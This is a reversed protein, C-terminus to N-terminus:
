IWLLVLLILIPLAVCFLISTSEYSMGYRKFFQLFKVSQQFLWDSYAAFDRCGIFFGFTTFAAAAKLFHFDFQYDLITLFLFPVVFFYVLVNIQNYTLKTLEAIRYLSKAVILFLFPIFKGKGWGFKVQIDKSMTQKTRNLRSDELKSGQVGM